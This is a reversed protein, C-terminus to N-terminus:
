PQEGYGQLISIVEEDEVQLFEDYYAGIAGLFTDDDPVKIGVFNGAEKELFLATRKSAIPIAVVIKQPRVDKLQVIAARMTLGTAAGDDVIVAITDHVSKEKHRGLYKVRRRQAEEKQRRIEQSLWEKDVQALEQENGVMRGDETIAAIAYEPQMPHGIKRTIILDLPAKLYKAVEDAVVVGGRPLAFVIVKGGQYERLKLALQKGADRRDTFYM